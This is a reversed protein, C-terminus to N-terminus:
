MLVIELESPRALSANVGDQPEPRKDAVDSMSTLCTPDVGEGLHCSRGRILCRSLGATHGAEAQMKVRPRQHLGCTNCCTAQPPFHLVVVSATCRSMDQSTQKARANHSRQDDHVANMSPVHQFHLSTCRLTHSLTLTGRSPQILM